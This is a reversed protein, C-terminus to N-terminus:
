IVIVIKDNRCIQKQLTNGATLSCYCIKQLYKRSNHKEDFNFVYSHTGTMGASISCKRQM